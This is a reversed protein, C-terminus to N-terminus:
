VRSSMQLTIKNKDALSQFSATQREELVLITEKPAIRDQPAVSSSQVRNGSNGDGQKNKPCKKM